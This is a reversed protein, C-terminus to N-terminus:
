KGRQNERNNRRTEALKPLVFEFYIQRVIMVLYIVMLTGCIAFVAVAYVAATTGDFFNWVLGLAKFAFYAMAVFPTLMVYLAGISWWPGQSQQKDENIGTM